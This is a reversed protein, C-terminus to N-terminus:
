REGKTQLAEYLGLGFFVAGLLVGSAIARVALAAGTWILDVVIAPRSM